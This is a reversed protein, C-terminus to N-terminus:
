QVREFERDHKATLVRRAEAHRRDMDRAQARRREEVHAPEPRSLQAANGREATHRNHLERSERVIKSNLERLEGAQKDLLKARPSNRRREAEAAKLRGVPDDHLVGKYKERIDM